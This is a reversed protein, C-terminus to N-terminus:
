EYVYNVGYILSFATDSYLTFELYVPM